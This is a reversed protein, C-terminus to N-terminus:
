TSRDPKETLLETASVALGEARHSVNDAVGEMCTAM